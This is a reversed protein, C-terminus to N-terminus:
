GRSIVAQAAVYRRCPCTSGSCAKREGTTESPKHLTSLHRCECRGPETPAEGRSEQGDTTM